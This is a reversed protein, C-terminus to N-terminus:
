RFIGDLGYSLRRAGESGANVFTDLVEILQQRAEENTQFLERYDALYRDVIRVVVDDAMQDYQYGGKRGGRIVRAARCFVGRPDVPVLIELARLLHHSLQPLGVDALEDIVEASDAYFRRLVQEGPSEDGDKAGSAFYISWGVSDLLSALDKMQEDAPGDEAAHHPDREREAGRRFEAAAGRTVRRLFHWSRGRAADSEPDPPDVTGSVLIERFRAALHTVAELHAVPDDALGDMVATADADRGSVFLDALINGCSNALKKRGHAGAVARQIGISIKAVRAPEEFRLSRLPGDVLGRLVGPSRDRAMQKIMRWTWGPDHVYRVLIRSAIQLRVCPAPDVALREVAALVDRNECSPHRLLTMLGKAAEIRAAPKGWVHEVFREDADSAAVPVRNGSAELLVTRVLAGAENQCRLGEMKAIAASAEALIGWAYDAQKEHVGDAEASRMATYLRKMHPLAESLAESEPVENLHANAFEEVPAELERVRKNPEEEVPVGEDALFEVEGSEGSFVHFTVDDENRPVTGAARLASVHERTESTVLGDEPLCGLLRDRTREAWIRREPPAVVPISLIAREIRERDAESLDLFLAGNMRGVDRITDPCMFVPLSWGVARIRMGIQDPYRAGLSLLRRWVAALRCTRVLTDLLNALETADEKRGALDELRQQVHDLLAVANEGPHGRGGDWIHSYDTLLLAREGDLNFESVEEDPFDPPSEEHTVHWELAANMAQVAEQPAARLFEPFSQVLQYLGGEYDQRRNSILAIVKGGLPAPAESTERYGFAARYIDGVLAPDRPTISIVADALCSLEESGHQALHEPEIARRLLESSTGVDAGFTRCVFQIARVVLWRDRRSQTWAFALLRRSATGVQEAQAASLQDFRAVLNSLIWSTPYSSTITFSDSIREALDCCLGAAEPQSGREALLARVCHGLANAASARVPDDADALAMLLPVFEQVALGTEAAVGPGILKGIEPIGRSGCVALATEWFEERPKGEPDLAWLYHFHMVLSPRGLLVFASDEELFAVLRHASRRLLLRAVAYDFLVHHAFALTSERPADEPRPRWETIVQESLLDSIHPGAAATEVLDRDVHLARQHSMAEVAKRLVATRSPADHASGGGLVRKQWYLDLLDLQSEVDRIARPDTGEDLLEAALRLNFPNHLLEAVATSASELLQALEPAGLDGIQQLEDDTLRGVVVHRMRAFRGGLLPPVPGDPPTGKFIVALDRSYRADYERISAVVNWQNGREGVERILTRLAAASPETRAADLADILLFAPRTGPWNALIDVVDHYLRLEDRLGGSSVFSPQQAALVIVERGEERLAEFLSHLVGSKGAGPEGVVLVSGTEAAERLLSVYPRQIRLDAGGLRIFADEALRGIVRDSHDKLRQIDRRYSRPARARVDASNLVELLTARDAHGQTQMLRLAETILVRWAATAQDPTELVNSRLIDKAAQEDREGEGVEITEVCLLNLLKRVDQDSPNAETAERWSARVHQAVVDLAKRRRKGLGDSPLKEGPYARVRELAERRNVRITRPARSGVALVFRDHASDYPDENGGAATRGLLFQRVFQDVASALPVLRGASHRVHSLSVTRKAQVYATGKARTTVILDDVPGSGECAIRAVPATLRFPPDADEEALLRVAVWASVRAQYAAGAGMAAGGANAATM